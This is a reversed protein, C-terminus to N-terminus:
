YQIARPTGQQFPMCDLKPGAKSIESLDQGALRAYQQMKTAREKRCQQYLKLRDPIEQKPTGLPLLVALSTADEIAQADGQGQYPLVPHAADGLLALNGRVWTPLTEMDFITSVQLSESDVHSLLAKEKEGFSAFVKLLLDNSGGQKLNTADFEISPYIAVFNM